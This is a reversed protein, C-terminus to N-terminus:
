WSKFDKWWRPKTEELIKVVNSGRTVTAIGTKLHNAIKRQTFNTFKSAILMTLIKLRKDVEELEAPTFIANLISKYENRSHGNRLIRILDQSPDTKLTM